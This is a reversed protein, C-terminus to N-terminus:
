VLIDEGVCIRDTGGNCFFCLGSVVHWRFLNFLLKILLVLVALVVIVSISIEGGAVTLVVSVRSAIKQRIITGGSCCYSM